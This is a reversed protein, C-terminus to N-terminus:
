GAPPRAPAAVGDPRYQGAPLRKPVTVGAPQTSAADPLADFTATLVSVDHGDIEHVLWGFASFRAALPEINM